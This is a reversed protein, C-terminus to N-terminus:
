PKSLKPNVVSISCTKTTTNGCDDASQVTWSITDGVGGSDQITITSGSFTVVCSELKSNGNKGVCDFGTIQVTAGSCNDTATATFSKPAQSPTIFADDNCHINPGQTDQVTIIQTASTSNGCDDVATWTRTLTYNAACSGDVRTESSTPVVSMDYNDTATVVAPSPVPDDCDVTQDPPVGILTPPTTDQITVTASDRTSRFCQDDTVILSANCQTSCIPPTSM